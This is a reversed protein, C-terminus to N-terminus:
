HEPQVSSLVSNRPKKIVHCPDMIFILKRSPNKFNAAVMKTSLPDKEPFHMKLFARNNSSGDM